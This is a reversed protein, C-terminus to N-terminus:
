SGVPAWLLGHPAHARVALWRERSCAGHPAGRAVARIRNSRGRCFSVRTARGVLELARRADAEAHGHFVEVALHVVARIQVGDLLQGPRSTISAQLCVQPLLHLHEHQDLVANAPTLAIKILNAFQAGPAKIRGRLPTARATTAESTQAQMGSAPYESATEGGQFIVWSGDRQRGGAATGSSRQTHTHTRTHTRTHTYTLVQIHCPGAGLSWGQSLPGGWSLGM